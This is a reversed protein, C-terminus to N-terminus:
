RSDAPTASRQGLLISEAGERWRDRAHGVTIGRYAGATALVAMALWLARAARRGGRRRNRASAAILLLAVLVALWGGSRKWWRESRRDAFFERLDARLTPDLEREPAAIPGPRVDAILIAHDSIAFPQGDLDVGPAHMWWGGAVTVGDGVLIDDVRHATASHLDLADRVVRHEIEDEFSNFDGALLHVPEPRLEAVLEATQAVRVDTYVVGDYDAQMHVTAVRLPGDPHDIWASQVGKGSFWDVHWPRVPIRGAAFPVFREDRLPWRAAIMLGASDFALPADSAHHIQHTLGIDAFAEALQAADDEFWVEQLLVVDPRLAQLAPGVEDWLDDHRDRFPVGWANFTVVRITGPDPAPPLAENERPARRGQCGALLLASLLLGRVM